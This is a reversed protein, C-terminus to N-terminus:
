RHCLGPTTLLDAVSTQVEHSVKSELGSMSQKTDCIRWHEVYIMKSDIFEFARLSFTEKNANVGEGMRVNSAPVM